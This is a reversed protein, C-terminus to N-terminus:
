ISYFLILGFLLVKQLAPAYRQVTNVAIDRFTLTMNVSFIRVLVYGHYTRTFLWSYIPFLGTKDIAFYKLGLVQDDVIANLLPQWQSQISLYNKQTKDFVSLGQM